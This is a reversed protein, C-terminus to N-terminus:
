FTLRLVFKRVSIRVEGQLNKRKKQPSFGSAVNSVNLEKELKSAVGAEKKRKKLGSPSSASILGVGAKLGNIIRSIMEAKDSGVETLDIEYIKGLDQL